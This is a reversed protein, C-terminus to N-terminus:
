KGQSPTVRKVESKEPLPDLPMIITQTDPSTNMAELYELYGGYQEMLLYGPKTLSLKGANGFGILPSVWGSNILVNWLRKNERPSVKIKHRILIEREFDLDNRDASNYLAKLVLDFIQKDFDHKKRIERTLNRFKKTKAAAKVTAKSDTKKMQRNFVTALYASIKHLPPPSSRFQRFIPGNGVNADGPPKDFPSGGTLSTARSTVVVASNFM